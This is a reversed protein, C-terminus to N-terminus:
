AVKCLQLLEQSSSITVALVTRAEPQQCDFISAIQVFLSQDTMVNDGVFVSSVASLVVAQCLQM